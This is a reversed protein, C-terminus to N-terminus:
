ASYDYLARIHDDLRSNSDVGLITHSSPPTLAAQIGSVIFALIWIGM